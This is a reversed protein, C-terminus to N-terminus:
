IRPNQNAFRLDELRYLEVEVNALRRLAIIREDTYIRIAQDLLLQAHDAKETLHARLWRLVLGRLWLPSKPVLM